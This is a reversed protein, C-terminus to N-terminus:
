KALVAWTTILTLVAILATMGAIAYTLKTITANTRESRRRALEEVYYNLGEGTTRAIENYRAVVEADTLSHLEELPLSV